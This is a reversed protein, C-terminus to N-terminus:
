LTNLYALYRRLDGQFADLQSLSLQVGHVHLQEILQSGRSELETAGLFALSGVLRHLRGAMLSTDLTNRANDLLVNDEWAEALLSGLMQSVVLTSGFTEVLSERTPEASLRSSQSSAGSVASRGPLWHMLAERLQELTLPKLLWADMGADRCRQPDDHVLNATLAIIPVRQRAKIQELLRIARTMRYGDMGPMQCDTIVLDFPRACITALGIRGDGVLEHDLGLKQLFWGMLARYTPHDEAVLVNLYQWHPPPESSAILERSPTPSSLSRGGM